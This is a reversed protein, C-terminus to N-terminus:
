KMHDAIFVGIGQIMQEVQGRNFADFRGHAAENRIDAWHRLQKAQTENYVGAKKLDDILPNLTKPSGDDKSVAIPPDQKGCLTRLTKELVAGALVAAPVHDYHGVTGEGILGQAQSMYDSAVEAEVLTEIDALFEAEVDERLSRLVSIGSELHDRRNGLTRFQELTQRHISDARIVQDLLTTGRPRGQGFSQRDVRYTDPTHREQRLGVGTFSTIPQGPVREIAEQIREGEAILDDFRNLIKERLKSPVPTM